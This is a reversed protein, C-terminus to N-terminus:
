MGTCLAFWNVEEIDMPHRFDPVADDAGGSCHSNSIGGNQMPAKNFNETM